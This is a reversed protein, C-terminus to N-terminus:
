APAGNLAAELDIRGDKIAKLTDILGSADMTGLETVPQGYMKVALTDLKRVGLGVIQGALQRVYGLQKETAQHGNSQQKIATQDGNSKPEVSQGNQHRALEDNVAQHCAAYAQRVRAQLGDPNTELLSGDLEVQVSCSAGLSGYDPQGIKKTVGVNLTMPM